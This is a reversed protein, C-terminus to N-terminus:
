FGADDGGLFPWGYSCNCLVFAYFVKFAMGGHEISLRRLEAVKQKEVAANAAELEM